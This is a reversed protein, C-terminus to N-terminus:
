TPTRRFMVLGLVLFFVTALWAAILPPVREIHGLGMSVRFLVMYMLAITLSVGFGIALGGRRLRMAFPVALWIMVFCLAPQSFKAYFDAWHAGTPRRQNEARRIDTLLAAASKTDPSEELAFLEDPTETIPAPRQTVRLVPGQWDKKPDLVLWWGDEIMWRHADPDWFIRRVQIQEQADERVSHMFVHEGTLAIPNFKLIHCAWNGRLNAWSIGTRKAPAIRTFYRAELREVERNAAAGITDQFLFLAVALGAAVFVPLRILRRLGVGGTLVATIENNQAADGLVLLASVLMALAAVQYRYLIRPIYVAYYRLVVSWPVDYKLIENRRHTLLDVLIFLLALSLMTKFLTSVLRAAFYRDLITM